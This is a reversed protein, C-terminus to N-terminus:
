KGGQISPIRFIKGTFVVCYASNERGEFKVPGRTSAFVIISVRFGIM